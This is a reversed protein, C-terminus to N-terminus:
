ATCVTPLRNYTYLAAQQRLQLGGIVIPRCDITVLRDGDTQGHDTAMLRDYDIQTVDTAIPRDLQRSM